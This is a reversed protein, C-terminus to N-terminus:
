RGVLEPVHVEDFTLNEASSGTERKWELFMKGYSNTLCDHPDIGLAALSRDIWETPGELEGFIGIPTEDLVLHGHTEGAGTGYVSGYETRYKEYRFAPGYGLRTFVEALVEGDAVESETEIRVKYISATDEEDPHRKHTLVWRDGYRRVRLIEGRGKLTREPTDYLTNQEFTRPTELHFGLEPLRHEFEPLSDIRFKLEIEASQM